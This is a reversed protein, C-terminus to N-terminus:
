QGYYVGFEINLGTCKSTNDFLVRLAYLREHVVPVKTEPVLDITNNLDDLLLFKPSQVPGLCRQFAPSVHSLMLWGDFHIPLNFQKRISSFQEAGTELKLANIKLPSNPDTIQLQETKQTGAEKVPTESAPIDTPKWDPHPTLPEKSVGCASLFILCLVAQLLLRM